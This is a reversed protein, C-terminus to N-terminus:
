SREPKSCVPSICPPSASIFSTSQGPSAPRRRKRRSQYTPTSEAWLRARGRAAEGVRSITQCSSAVAITRVRSLSPASEAPSRRAPIDAIASRGSAPRPIAARRSSGPCSTASASAGGAAELEARAGPRDEGDDLERPARDRLAEDMRKEIVAVAPPVREPARREVLADLRRQGSDGGRQRGDAGAGELAVPFRGHVVEVRHEDVLDRAVPQAGVAHPERGRLGAAGVRDVVEEFPQGRGVGSEGAVGAQGRQLSPEGVPDVAAEGVAGARAPREPKVEVLALVPLRASSSHSWASSSGM